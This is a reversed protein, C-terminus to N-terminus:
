WPGFPMLKEASSPRLTIHLGDPTLSAVEWVKGHVNFPEDLRYFEASDTSERRCPLLGSMAQRATWIVDWLWTPKDLAVELGQCVACERTLLTPLPIGFQRTLASINILSKTNPLHRNKMKMQKVGNKRTAARSM